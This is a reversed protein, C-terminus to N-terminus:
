YKAWTVTAVPRGASDYVNIHPGVAYMGCGHGKGTVIRGGAPRLSKATAVCESQTAFNKTVNQM